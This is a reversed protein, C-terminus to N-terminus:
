MWIALLGSFSLTAGECSKQAEGSESARLAWCACRVCTRPGSRAQPTRANTAPTAAMMHQKPSCPHQQDQLGRLLPTQGTLLLEEAPLSSARMRATYPPIRSCADQAPNTACAHQDHMSKPMLLGTGAM